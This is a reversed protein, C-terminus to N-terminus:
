LSSFFQFMTIKIFQLKVKLYPLFISLQMAGFINRMMCGIGQIIRFPRLEIGGGELLLKKIFSIRIETEMCYGIKEFKQLWLIEEQGMVM